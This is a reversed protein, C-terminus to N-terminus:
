RSRLRKVLSKAFIMSRIDLKQQESQNRVVLCGYRVLHALPAFMPKPIKDADIVPSKSLKTSNQAGM